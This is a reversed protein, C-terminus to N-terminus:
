ELSPTAADNPSSVGLLQLLIDFADDVPASAGELLEALLLGDVAALLLTAVDSSKARTSTASVSEALLARRETRMSASRRKLEADRRAASWVEINLATSVPTQRAVQWVARFVDAAAHASLGRPPIREKLKGLDREYTFAQVEHILALKSAFYYHVISKRLGLEKGISALTSATFGDQAFCKAAAAL